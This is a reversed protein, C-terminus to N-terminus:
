SFYKKELSVRCFIPIIESVQGLTKLCIWPYYEVTFYIIYLWSNLCVMFSEKNHTGFITTFLVLFLILNQAFGSKSEGLFSKQLIFFFLAFM